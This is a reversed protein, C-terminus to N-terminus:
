RATASGKRRALEAAIADISVGSSRMLDELLDVAAKANAGRKAEIDDLRAVIAGRAEQVADLGSKMASREGQLVQYRDRLGRLRGDVARIEAQLDAINAEKSHLRGELNAIDTDKDLLQTRLVDEEAALPDIVPKDPSPSELAEDASRDPDLTASAQAQMSQLARMVESYIGMNLGLVHGVGNKGFDLIMNAESSLSRFMEYEEEANDEKGFLRRLAVSSFRRANEVVKGISVIQGLVVMHTESLRKCFEEPRLPKGPDKGSMVLYLMDATLTKPYLYIQFRHWGGRPSHLCVQARVSGKYPGIAKLEEELKGNQMRREVAVTVVDDVGQKQLFERLVRKLDEEPTETHKRSPQFEVQLTMTDGREVWEPLNYARVSM